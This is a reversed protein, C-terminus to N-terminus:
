KEERENKETTEKCDVIIGRYQRKKRRKVAGYDKPNYEPVEGTRPDAAFGYFDNDNLVCLVDSIDEVFNTKVNLANKKLISLQAVAGCLRRKSKEIDTHREHTRFLALFEPTYEEIRSERIRKWWATYTEEKTGKEDVFCLCESTLYDCIESRLNYILHLRELVLQGPKSIETVGFENKIAIGFQKIWEDLSTYFKRKTQYEINLILTVPPLLGDVVERLHDVNDSNEFCSSRVKILEQKIEENKGFELYWDIRGILMGTVYSNYAYARQYVYYDYESILKDARWKEIFFSKYNKEIVERSKNYIRVFINNSNRMGFSLYDIDVTKGIEGVKQYKRLKTKLKSLLIDDNFYRTPNQILNTHYAYDIRNEKVEGVELGFEGLIAEVYRFSKCIAQNVGDLVLSRTRLQVVVRPTFVNPLTSSIFIDFTENLRLCYEYHVFRTCEVSLGFFDVENAYCGAKRDKLVKLQDLMAQVGENENSDGYITCSYYLTDVHNTVKRDTQSFYREQEEPTFESYIPSRRFFKTVM